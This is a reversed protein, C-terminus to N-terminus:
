GRVAAVQGRSLGRGPLRLSILAAALLLVGASGFAVWHTGFTEFAWGGLWSSIMGGVQHGLYALGYLVGVLRIGYVDALIASSL